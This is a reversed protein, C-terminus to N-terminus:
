LRSHQWLSTFCIYFLEQAFTFCYHPNQKIFFQNLKLNMPYFGVCPM